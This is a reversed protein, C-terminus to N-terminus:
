YDSTGAFFEDMFGPERGSARIADLEAKRRSELTARQRAEYALDNQMKTFVRQYEPTATEAETPEAFKEYYGSAFQDMEEDAPVYESSICILVHNDKPFMAFWGVTSSQRYLGEVVVPRMKLAERMAKQEARAKAADAERLPKVALAISESVIRSQFGIKADIARVFPWVVEKALRKSLIAAPSLAKMDDPVPQSEDYSAIYADIVQKLEPYIQRYWQKYAREELDAQSQWKAM